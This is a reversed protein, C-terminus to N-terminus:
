RGKRMMSQHFAAFSPAIVANDHGKIKKKLDNQHYETIDVHASNIGQFDHSWIQNVNWIKSQQPEMMGNRKFFPISNRRRFKNIANTSQLWGLNGTLIIKKARRCMVNKYIDDFIDNLDYGLNEDEKLNANIIITSGKVNKCGEDGYKNMQNFFFELKNVPVGDSPLDRKEREPISHVMKLQTWTIQGSKKRYVGTFKEEEMVPIFRHGRFLIPNCITNDNKEQDSIGSEEYRGLVRNEKRLDKYARMTINQLSIITPKWQDLNVENLVNKNDADFNWSLVGVYNDYTLKTLVKDFLNGNVTFPLQATFLIAAAVFFM